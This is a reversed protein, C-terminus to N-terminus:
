RIKKIHIGPERELPEHGPIGSNIHPDTTLEQEEGQLGQSHEDGSYEDGERDEESMDITYNTLLDDASRTDPEPDDEGSLRGHTHTVQDGKPGDECMDLQREISGPACPRGEPDGPDLLEPLEDSKKKPQIAM